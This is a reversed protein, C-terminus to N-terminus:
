TRAADPRVALAARALGPVVLKGDAAVHHELRREGGERLAALDDEDLRQLLEGLSPSMDSVVEWWASLSPARWALPVDEVHSVVLGAGSLVGELRGAAALRFPGPADLDPREMLGLELGSRGLATMWDNAEPEAWVAVAVRGGPRVVRALERAATGIDPVLMLGWRCLVGDVSADALGLSTADEVSFEVGELGRRAAQRRAAEVMEPAVDTTLLRGGPQLHPLALFGTDGPGAAVDLITEGPQPDLLAVLRESVPRSSEWM